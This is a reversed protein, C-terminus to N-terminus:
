HGAADIVQKLTDYAPKYSNDQRVIGWGSKGDVSPMRRDSWYFWIVPIKNDHAAQFVETALKAQHAESSDSAAYGIETIWLPKDYTKALEKEQAITEDLNYRGDPDLANYPHFSLYDLYKAGGLRLFENTFTEAEADTYDATVIVKASPNEERIIKQTRKLLELYEAPTGYRFDLATMDPENWVEWFYIINKNRRVESRVGNEWKALEEATLARNAPKGSYGSFQGVPYLGNKAATEAIFDSISNDESLHYSIKVGEFGAKKINNIDNEIERNINTNVSIQEIPTTATFGYVYFIGFEPPNEPVPLRVASGSYFSYALYAIVLIIIAGISKLFFKNMLMEFLSPLIKGHPIPEKASKILFDGFLRNKNNALGM